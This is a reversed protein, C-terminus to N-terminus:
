YWIPRCCTYHPTYQTCAGARTTIIYQLTIHSAQRICISANGRHSAANNKRRVTSRHKTYLVEGEFLSFIEFQDGLRRSPHRRFVFFRRRVRYMGQEGRRRSGLDGITL